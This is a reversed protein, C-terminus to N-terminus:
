MSMGQAEQLVVNYLACASLPSLHELPWDTTVYNYGLVIESLPPVPSTLVLLMM